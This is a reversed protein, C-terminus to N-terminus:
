RRGRMADFFGRRAAVVLLVILREFVAPSRSTRLAERIQARGAAADGSDLLRRARRLATLATDELARRTLEDAQPLALSERNVAIARRLGRVNGGHRRYTASHSASHVRYLALPEVVHWVPYRAAIRTWMEWDEGGEVVRLDFGGLNEYVSRRV